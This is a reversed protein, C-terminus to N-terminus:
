TRDLWDNLELQTIIKEAFAWLVVDRSGWAWSMNHEECFLDELAMWQNVIDKGGSKFKGLSGIEVPHTNCFM